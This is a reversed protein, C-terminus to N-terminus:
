HLLIFDTQEIWNYIEMSYYDRTDSEKKLNKCLIRSNLDMSRSDQPSRAVPKETWRDGSSRISLEGVTYEKRRSSRRWEVISDFRISDRPPGEIEAM